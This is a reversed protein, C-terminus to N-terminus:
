DLWVIGNDVHGIQKMKFEREGAPVMGRAEISIDGDRDEWIDVIDPEIEMDKLIELIEQETHQKIM